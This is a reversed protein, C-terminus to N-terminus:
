IRTCFYTGINPELMGSVNSKTVELTTPPLHMLPPPMTFHSNTEHFNVAVVLIVQLQELLLHHVVPLGPMLVNDKEHAGAHSWGVKGDDGPAYSM